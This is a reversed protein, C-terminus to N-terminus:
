GSHKRLIRQRINEDIFEPLDLPDLNRGQKENILRALTAELLHGVRRQAQFATEGNFITRGDENIQAYKPNAELRDIRRDLDNIRRGDELVNVPTVWDANITYDDLYHMVIYAIDDSSLDEKRALREAELLRKDELGRIWVIVRENFGTKRMWGESQNGSEIFNNIGKGSAKEVENRKNFDHGATALRLDKKVDEPLELLDAFVESRATEVLCHESVNRWPNERDWLRGQHKHLGFSKRVKIGLKQFYRTKVKPDIGQDLETM